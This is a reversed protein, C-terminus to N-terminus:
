VGDLDAVLSRSLEDVVLGVNKDFAFALLLDLSEEDAPGENEGM